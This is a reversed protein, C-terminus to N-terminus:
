LVTEFTQRSPWVHIREAKDSSMLITAAKKWQHLCSLLNYLSCCIAGECVYIKECGGFPIVLDFPM